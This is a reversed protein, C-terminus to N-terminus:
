LTITVPVLGPRTSRRPVVGDYGEADVVDRIEAALVPPQGEVLHGAMPEGIATPDGVDSGHPGV